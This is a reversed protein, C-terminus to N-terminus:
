DEAIVPDGPEGPEDNARGPTHAEIWELVPQWALTPADIATYLDVHGFDLAIEDPGHLTVILSTVDTSGVVDLTIDGYQDPHGYGGAAALLFIPVTIEAIHDDWPMDVEGCWMQAAELNIIHPLSVQPSNVWFEIYQDYATYQLGAGIGDEDFIGAWFHAPRGADTPSTGVTLIAQRNTLGPFFASDGDPDTKAPVGLLIFINPDAYFGAEILAAYYAAEACGIAARDTYVIGYDVPIFGSVNRHGAPRQTEESLLGYGIVAGASYGSLILKRNGNGTLLRAFRAAAVGLDLEDVFRQMGWTSMFSYDFQDDWPLLTNAHDLGWVDVDAAALYVAFGFDDPLEPSHFGPLFNGVFDKGAGHDLFIAKRSRIPHYPRAERVVRHLGIRDYEGPGIKVVFGYHIIDGTVVERVASEIWCSAFKEVSSPDAEEAGDVDDAIPWEGAGVIARAASESSIWGDVEPAQSDPPNPGTVADRECGTGSLLLCSLCALLLITPIRM